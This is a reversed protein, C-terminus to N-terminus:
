SYSSLPEQHILIDLEGTINKQLIAEVEHAVQHAMLLTLDDNLKLNFQIFKTNGSKRTRIDEIGHVDEHSNILKIIVTKEEEPLEKDMLHEGSEVAVRWANFLLFAAISITFIADAAQWGANALLMALIVSANLLLDGKYHLSDAKIAVSGTKNIVINQVVVLSLTCIIAFLSVNISLSIGSDSLEIPHFLREIGHFALLCASGGIFAAQALGALSEAKGHGFRHNDDAPLLAYRLVFFNILTATLDLLSDTLSGLMSASGTVLWAWIKTTVMLSVIIVATWSALKVWFNYSSQKM